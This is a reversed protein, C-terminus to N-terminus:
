ECGRATLWLVARPAGSGPAAPRGPEAQCLAFMGDGEVLSAALLVPDPQAGCQPPRPGCMDLLAGVCSGTRPASPPPAPQFRRSSPRLEVGMSM